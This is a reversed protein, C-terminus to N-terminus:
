RADLPRDGIGKDLPAAQTILDLGVADGFIRISQAFALQMPAGIREDLWLQGIGMGRRDIAEVCQKRRTLRCGLGLFDDLGRAIRPDVGQEQRAVIMKPSPEVLRFVADDSVPAGGIAM